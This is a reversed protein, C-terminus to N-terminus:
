TIVVEAKKRCVGSFCVSVCHRSVVRKMKGMRDRGTDKSNMFLVPVPIKIITLPCNYRGSLYAGCFPVVPVFGGPQM